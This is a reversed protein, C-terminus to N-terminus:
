LASAQPPEVLPNEMLIRPLGDGVLTALAAQGVLLSQELELEERELTFLTLQTEQWSRDDLLNKGHAADAQKAFARASTMRRKLDALQREALAQESLLASIEGTTATLRAEFELRLTERTAQERAIAAENRDFLPLELTAQPGITFLGNNDRGGALGFTVNPFQALLAQRLRADQSQYGYRLAILDPRREALSQLNERVRAANLPPATAGVPSLPAEPERGLLANLQHRRALQARQLDNELKQVEAAARLDPSLLASPANGQNMAQSARAFRAEVLKRTRSFLNQAREGMALGVFLRRATGITQWERWCLAADIEAAANAAAEIKAPRLVLSKLDQSLGLGYGSVGDGGGVFFPAAVSFQPNPLAGAQMLQARSIGLKARAARLDPNHELVLRDLDRFSLRGGKQLEPPNQPVATLNLPRPSYSECGCLGICLGALAAIFVPRTM